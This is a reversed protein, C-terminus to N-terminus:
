AIYHVRHDVIFFYRLCLNLCTWSSGLSAITCTHLYLNLKITTPYSWKKLNEMLECSFYTRILNWFWCDVLSSGSEYESHEWYKSHNVNLIWKCRTYWNHLYRRKLRYDWSFGSFFFVNEFHKALIVWM